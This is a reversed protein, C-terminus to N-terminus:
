DVFLRVLTCQWRTEIESCVNAGCGDNWEM